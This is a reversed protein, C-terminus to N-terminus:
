FLYAAFQRRMDQPQAQDIIAFRMNQLNRVIITPNPCVRTGMKLYTEPDKQGRDTDFHASFSLSRQRRM